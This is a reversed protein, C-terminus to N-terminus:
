APAVDTLWEHLTYTVFGEALFPDEAMFREATERTRFLALNGRDAFPGLAIIDGTADLEDVMAKHRPYVAMLQERSAGTSVGLVVWTM